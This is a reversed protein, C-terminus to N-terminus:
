DFVGQRLGTVIRRGHVAPHLSVRKSRMGDEDAVCAWPEGIAKVRASFETQRDDRASFWWRGFAAPCGRREARDFKGVGLGEDDPECDVRQAFKFGCRYPM